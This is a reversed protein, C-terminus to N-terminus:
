GGIGSETYLSLWTTAAAGAVALVLAAGTWGGLTAGLAIASVLAVGVIAATRRASAQASLSRSFLQVTTM